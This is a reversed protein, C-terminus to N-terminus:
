AKKEKRYLSIEDLVDKQTLNLGRTHAAANEFIRNWREKKEIYLCTPEQVSESRSCLEDKAILDIYENAKDKFSLDTIVTSM